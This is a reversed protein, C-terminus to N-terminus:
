HVIESQANKFYDIIRNAFLQADDHYSKFAKMTLLVAIIIGGTHFMLQMGQIKRWFLFGIWGSTLASGAFCFNWCRNMHKISANVRYRAQNDKILKTEYANNRIEYGNDSFVLLGAVVKDVADPLQKWKADAEYVLANDNKWKKIVFFRPTDGKIDKTFLLSPWGNLYIKQTSTPATPIM